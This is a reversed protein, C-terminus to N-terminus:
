TTRFVVLRLNLAVEPKKKNCYITISNNNTVIRSVNGWAKEQNQATTVNTADPILGVLPEDSALIGPVSVTQTYPATSGSYNATPAAYYTHMGVKSSVVDDLKNLVETLNSLGQFLTTGTTDVKVTDSSTVFSIINGDADEYSTEIYTKGGSSSTSGQVMYLNGDVRDVDDDDPGVITTSSSNEVSSIYKELEQVRSEIGLLINIEDVISEFGEALGLLDDIHDEVRQVEENLDLIIQDAQDEKLFIQEQFQSVITITRNELNEMQDRLNYITNMAPEIGDVKEIFETTKATLEALRQLLDKTVDISNPTAKTSSHTNKVVQNVDILTKSAM